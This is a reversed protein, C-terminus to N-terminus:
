DTHSFYRNKLVLFITILALYLLFVMLLSINEVSVTSLKLSTLWDVVIFIYEALAYAIGAFPLAFNQALLGTIATLASATMLIPIVPLVLLNALLSVTSFMGTYYLLLPTVAIQATITATAMERIGFERPIRSLWGYVVDGFSVLGATAIVSLQFSPDFLLIHPNIVVMAIVAIMLGREAVYQRSFIRAILAIIAMISARVVTPTLGVLLAFFIVGIGSLITASLLSLGLFSLTAGIAVTVVTVHYGSLVVVHVIGSARFSEEIREGLADAAGLLVGGALAAQPDPIHRNISSLLQRRLSTMWGLVMNGGGKDMLTIQPRSLEYFVDERALYRPYNFLRGTDTEFATPKGLRGELRLVDGYRLKPFSGAYIVARSEATIVKGDDQSVVELLTVTLNQGTERQEPMDAVVGYAVVSEELLDDFVSEEDTGIVAGGRLSGAALSLLLIILVIVASSGGLELWRFLILVAALLLGLAAVPASSVGIFPLATGALFGLGASYFYRTQM